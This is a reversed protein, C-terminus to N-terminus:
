NLAQVLQNRVNNLADLLQQHAALVDRVESARRAFNAVQDVLPSTSVNSALQQLDSLASLQSVSQASALASDLRQLAVRIDSRIRDSASNALQVQDSLQTHLQQITSLLSAADQGQPQAVPEPQAPRPFPLDWENSPQAPPAGFGFSDPIPSNMGFPAPEPTFGFGNNQSQPPVPSFPTPPSNFSPAAFAPQGVAAAEPSLSFLIEQDGITLRDGDKLITVERIEVGNVLTGNSSGLDTVTVVDNQRRVIAHRRSVMQDDPIVIDCTPARGISIEAVKMEFEHAANDPSKWTFKVVRAMPDIRM